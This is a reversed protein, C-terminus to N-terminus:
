AILRTDVSSATQRGSTAIALSFSLRVSISKGIHHKALEALNISRSKSKALLDALSKDIPAFITLATKDM